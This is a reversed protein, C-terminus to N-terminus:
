VDPTLTEVTSEACAEGLAAGAVSGGANSGVYGKGIDVTTDFTGDPATCGGDNWQVEDGWEGIITCTIKEAKKRGNEHCAGVTILNKTNDCKYAAHVGRSLSPNVDEGIADCDADTIATGVTVNEAYATGFGFGLSLILAALIKNNM